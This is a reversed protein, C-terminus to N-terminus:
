ADDISIINQEQSYRGIGQTFSLLISEVDHEVLDISDFQHRLLIAQPESGRSLFPIKQGVYLDCCLDKAPLAFSLL